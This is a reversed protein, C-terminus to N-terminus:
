LGPIKRELVIQAKDERAVTEFFRKLEKYKKPPVISQRITFDMKYKVANNEFTYSRKFGGFDENLEVDPPLSPVTYGEPISISVTKELQRPYGLNLAYKREPPGVLIAYTSLNDNPMPFLLKDGLPMGYQPSSFEISTEVPVDMDNLNSINLDKIKAAPFQHNLTSAFFDQTESPKLSKYLLRYELNHQGNTHTDERGHISGDANLSIESFLSLRNVSYPYIPTEVFVGSENTIVFAKRAQDGAPLDGYSCTESTPDLWIYNGEPTPLAAIVHSFQGPSPLEVDIKEFPAPNIMVPYAEIGAVKLMAIMLTTKDKCDGFRNRFVDQAYKPQYAGKGYEVGVYRIQSAVFYYIAKIKEKDTKANAILQAVTSEIIEDTNYQEVSLENYWSAVDDWSEVSSYSLRPVVDSISAMNLELQIGETEGHIWLYTKTTENHLIIPEIEIPTRFEQQANYTKWQFKLDTPVRLAYKSKLIPDTTQFAMGGWFWIRDSISETADEVTIQYEIIAGPRLAPMTVVKWIVDSFLNYELLGPPTVDHFSEDPAEVVTGDPLITRTVNAEINQSQSKFPMAVDGYNQIGRETCIKIVQHITYRSRGTELVEHSFKNLLIIADADPYDSADPANAIVSEIDDEVINVPEVHSVVTTGFTFENLANLRSKALLNEPDIELMQLYELQAEYYRGYDELLSALQKRPWMDDPFLRISEQYEAIANDVDGKDEYILGFYNHINKSDPQQCEPDLELATRLVSEAKDIQKLQIYMLGLHNLAYLNKPDYSLVTEFQEAGQQYQGLIEHLYGLYNRASINQPDLELGERFASQALEYEEQKAYTNALKIHVDSSNPEIALALKYEEIAKPFDNNEFALNGTDVYKQWLNESKVLKDVIEEKPSGRSIACGTIVFACLGCLLIIQVRSHQNKM